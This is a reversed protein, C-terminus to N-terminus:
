HEPVRITYTSLLEQRAGTVGYLRVQYRGAGFYKRPVVIMVSDDPNRRVADSTWIKKGSSVAAIEARFGEAASEGVYPVLLFFEGQATVATAVDGGGRQGDPLLVQQVLLHPNKLETQAHWLMAGLVVVLAAAIAGFARWFQLVRGGESRQRRKQLAAWRGAFEDDSLYDPHGPEAAEPFQATLTRVLEPYAILRERIRAAEDAPLEGRTYALMEEATPPEIRRQHDDAMLAAAFESKTTM